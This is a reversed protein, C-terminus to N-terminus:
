SFSGNTGTIKAGGLIQILEGNSAISGINRSYFMNFPMDFVETGEMFFPRKENLWSAWHSINGQDADSEVQGFDPLVSVDLVTQIGLPIKIDAGFTSWRDDFLDDGNTFQLRGAVFPRFEISHSSPLDSLGELDGFLSVDIGGQEKMRFMYGGENSYSIGRYFNIGWLQEEGSPYRLASLPIAFEASWGSDCEMVASSWVADWNDDFGGAATRRSDMQTNDVTVTFVYCNSDDNFTDLYISIRDVPAWEDRAGAQHNIRSPDPDHMFCGAYLYQSDYMIRVATPQSLPVDCVPAFATFSSTEVAAQSWCLDDLLGDIVPPSEATGALIGILFETLLTYLM